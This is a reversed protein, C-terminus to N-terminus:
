TNLPDICVAYDQSTTANGCKPSLIQVIVADGLVTATTEPYTHSVPIDELLCQLIDSMTGMNM